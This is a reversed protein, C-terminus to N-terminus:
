VHKYRGLLRLITQIYPMIRLYCFIYRVKDYFPVYKDKLVHGDIEPYTERWMKYYKKQNVLCAICGRSKMKMVTFYKEFQETANNMEFFSLLTQTNSHSDSHSKLRREMGPARCISNPNIYYHYFPRSIYLIPEKCYYILEITLTWDEGMNGKPYLIPNNYLRRHSLYACVSGPITSDLLSHLLNERTLNYTSPFRKQYAHYNLADDLVFDCYCIDADQSKAKLYMTEYMDTEVWDDSDCHILYEGTAAKIGVERVKAQGSNVPMDIIRVQPKREPYEELVEKLIDISRDKTCDNVFIYELSDLTQSFLSRACREIFKEVGYVPIIVSVKPMATQQPSQNTM